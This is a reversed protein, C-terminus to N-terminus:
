DLATIRLYEVDIHGMHNIFVYGEGNSTVKEAPVTYEYVTGFEGIPVFDGTSSYFFAEESMHEVKVANDQVTLRITLWEGAPIRELAPSQGLVEWKGGSYRLMNATQAHTLLLDKQAPNDIPCWFGLGFIYGWASFYRVKLELQFNRYQRGTYFLVSNADETGDDTQSLLGDETIVWNYHRGETKGWWAIMPLFESPVDGAPFRSFDFYVEQDASIGLTPVLMVGLAVVLSVLMVIRMNRNM